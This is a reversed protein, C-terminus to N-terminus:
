VSPGPAAGAALFIIRKVERKGRAVNDLIIGSTLSIFGLIGIASALVATPFRPVLGTEVYEVLIPAALGISLIFFAAAFTSFFLLPRVDKLMLLMKLLIRFGDRYTRLKSEGGHIRDRYPLSIECVPIQLELAHVTMETEIEFGKAVAPFSKAFRRSFVRYGSFIDEFGQGFFRALLYNFLGNGFAHGSRSVSGIDERAGVVMDFPGDLLAKILRPGGSADYTGDGDAMLYIDADIDAFMRRVVNGKGRMIEKRVVAGAAAAVDATDDTSANDYVFIEADPLSTQFDEIVKAIAAGENLCPLLVAIKPQSAATASSTQSRDTPMDGRSM